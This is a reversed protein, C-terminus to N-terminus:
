DCYKVSFRRKDEICLATLERGWVCGSDIPYLGDIGQNDCELAAWHGFIIEHTKLAKPQCQFWPHYHESADKPSGKKRLDLRGSESVLRMRTFVNTIFRARLWGHLDPSWAEPQNGYMHALFQPYDANQLLSEVEKAYNKAEIVDWTPYIGAHVLLTHHEEEEHLLPLHRLWDSLAPAQTSELLPNISDYHKPEAVGAILALCHLDHNGLVITIKDQAQYLYDLVELSRPGRNVLDGAIWLRDQKPNYNIEKLLAKFSKYCGQIDGIAFTAM